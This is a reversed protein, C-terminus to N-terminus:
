EILSSDQGQWATGHTKTTIERIQKVMATNSVLVHHLDNGVSVFNFGSKIADEVGDTGFLFIGAIKNHKKCAELLKDVAEKLEPSSYMHPFEYKEFLGMSMALDNRGLFAIDIRPNSLIEDINKICDATEVQVAVITNENAAGVYGLLGAENTARQPFYISRNGQHKSPEPYLCTNVAENAEAATNIYPILIGDSGCDLAKQIGTRDNYGNVRVFSKAKGNGIGILMHNMTDTSIPGHQLDVLLWDYRSQSLQEAIVPSGSNLFLGFKTEGTKLSEKFQKGTQKTINKALM